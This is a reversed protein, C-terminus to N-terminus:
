LLNWRIFLSFFVSFLSFAIVIMGAQELSFKEFYQDELEVIELLLLAEGGNGAEGNDVEGERNEGIDVNFREVEFTDEEEFTEFKDWVDFLELM